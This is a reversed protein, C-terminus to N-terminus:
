TTPCGVKAFSSSPLLLYLCSLISLDLIIVTRRGHVLIVDSLGAPEHRLVDSSLPFLCSIDLALEYQSHGCGVM